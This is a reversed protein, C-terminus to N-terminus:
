SSFARYGSSLLTVELQAASRETETPLRGQLLLAARRLSAERPELVVATLFVAQRSSVENSSRSFAYLTQNEADALEAIVRQIALYGDNSETLQVGGAHGEGGEIKAIFFAEGKGKLYTSLAGFNNLASAANTRQFQLTSNRAFGGEVHCFICKEQVIATEVDAEFTQAAQSDSDDPLATLEKIVLQAPDPTFLLRTENAVSYSAFYLYNGAETMKGDILTYNNTTSLTQETAFPTLTEIAGRHSEQPALQLTLDLETATSLANSPTSATVSLEFVSNSAMGDTSASNITAIPSTAAAALASAPALALIALTVRVLQYKSHNELQTNPQIPVM